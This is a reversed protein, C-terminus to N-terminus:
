QVPAEGEVDECWVEEEVSFTIPVLAAPSINITYTIYKNTYWNTVAAINKLEVDRTYERTAVTGSTFTTKVTYNIKMVQGNVAQPMVYYNEWDAATSVYNGDKKLNKTQSSFITWTAGGAPASWITNANDEKAATMYTEDVVLTGKNQIGEISLDKVIVEYSAVGNELPSPDKQALVIKLKALVHRFLLAVESNSTADYDYTQEVQDAYMLNVNTPNVYSDDFKFTLTSVGVDTRAVSVYDNDAPSVATFELAKKNPWYYTKSNATAWATGSKVMKVGDMLAYNTGKEWAYVKFDENSFTTEGHGGRTQAVYNAAVFEIKGQEKAADFVSEDTTCSALAVSAMAAFLFMKKM